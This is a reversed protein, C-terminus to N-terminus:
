YYYTVLVNNRIIELMLYNLAALSTYVTRIFIGNVDEQKSPGLFGEQPGPSCREVIHM